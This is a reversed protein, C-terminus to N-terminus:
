RHIYIYIYIYVYMCIIAYMYIYICTYIYIYIDVQTKLPEYILKLAWTYVLFTIPDKPNLTAPQVEPESIEPKKPTTRCLGLQVIVVSSM